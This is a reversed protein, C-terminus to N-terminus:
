YWVLVFCKSFSKVYVSDFAHECDIFSVVLLTQCDLYKETILTLTFPEEFCFERNRFDGQKKMSVLDVADKPDFPMM